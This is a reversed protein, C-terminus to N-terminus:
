AICRAGRMAREFLSQPQLTYNAEHHWFVFLYCLCVTSVWGFHLERLWCFIDRWSEAETFCHYSGQFLANSIYCCCFFKVQTLGFDAVKARFRSDVLVNQAKIDGHIVALTAAHLFHAGQAIDRLIALITGGDLPFTTNHLLDYLSGLDMFELFLMPEEEGREIVAGMVSVISPHRPTSLQHRMEKVFDERMIKHQDKKFPSLIKLSWKSESTPPDVAVVSGFGGPTMLMSAGSGISSRGAAASANVAIIQFKHVVVTRSHDVVRLRASRGSHIDVSSRRLNTKAKLMTATTTSSGSYSYRCRVRQHRAAEGQAEVIDADFFHSLRREGGKDAAVTQEKKLQNDSETEDTNEGGANPQLPPTPALSVSAPKEEVTVQRERAVIRPRFSLSSQWKREEINLLCSWVLPGVVLSKPHTTM